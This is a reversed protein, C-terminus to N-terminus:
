ADGKTSEARPKDAIHFTAAKGGHGCEPCLIHSDDDWEVGEHEGSGMDEMEMLTEVYIKFRKFQGCNPCEYGELCNENGNRDAM